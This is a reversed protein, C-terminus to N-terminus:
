VEYPNSVTKVRLHLLDRHYHVFWLDPKQTSKYDLVAYIRLDNGNMVNAGPLSFIM